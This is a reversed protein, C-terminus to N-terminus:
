DWGWQEGLELPGLPYNVGKRMALKLAAVDAVEEQVILSAKNALMAVTRTLVMVAIDKIISVHKGLPHYLGVAQQLEQKSYELSFALVISSSREYDLYLDLPIVSKEIEASRETSSKGNAPVVIAGEPLRIYGNRAYNEVLVSCGELLKRLSEPLHEPGELVVSDPTYNQQANQL